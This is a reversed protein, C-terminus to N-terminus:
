DDSVVYKFISFLSTPKKTSPVLSFMFMGTKNSLCRMSSNLRCKKMLLVIGIPQDSTQFLSFLTNDMRKDYCM